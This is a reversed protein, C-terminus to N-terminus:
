LPHEQHARDIIKACGMRTQGVGTAPGGRRHGRADRIMAPRDPFQQRKVHWRRTPRWGRLSPTGRMRELAQNFSPASVVTLQPAVLAHYSWVLGHHPSTTFWVPTWVYEEHGHQWACGPPTDHVGGGCEAGIPVTRGSALSTPAIDTDM